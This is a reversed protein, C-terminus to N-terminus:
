YGVKLSGSLYGYRVGLTFELYETDGNTEYTEHLHRIADERSCDNLYSRINPIVIRELHREAAIAKPLGARIDEEDFLVQRPLNDLEIFDRDIIKVHGVGARVMSNAIVTGLAGCGTILVSSNSLREQGEEGIEKLLAQKFYRSGKGYKSM